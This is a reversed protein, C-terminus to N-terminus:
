LLNWGNTSRASGLSPESVFAALLDVLAAIGTFVAATKATGKVDAHPPAHSAFSVLAWIQWGTIVVTFIAAFTMVTQLSSLAGSSAMIYAAVAVVVVGGVRVWIANIYNGIARSADSYDAAGPIATTPANIDASPPAFGQEAQAPQVAPAAAGRVVAPPAAPK